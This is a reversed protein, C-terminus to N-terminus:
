TLNIERSARGNACPRPQRLQAHAPLWRFSSSPPERPCVSLKSSFLNRRMRFRPYILVAVVKEPEGQGPQALAFLGLVQNLLGKEGGEAGEALERAAQRLSPPQNADEIAFQEIIEAALAALLRGTGCAARSIKGARYDAWHEFLECTARRLRRGRHKARREGSDIMTQFDCKLHAWCWQLCGLHWYMKAWDCNFVGRFAEGLFDGPTRVERTARM